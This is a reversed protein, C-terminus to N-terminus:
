RGIVLRVRAAFGGLNSEGFAEAASGPSEGIAGPVSTWQVEGAVGYWRAVRYEVGALAHFGTFTESVNDGTAAFESKESYRHWGIGAGAYPIFNRQRGGPRFRYGASLEVPTIGVDMNIGLPFVEDEDVFVREGSKGFHSIRFRLFGPIWAHRSQPLLVEAGGGLFVGASSGLTADFTDAAAFRVIDLDGFGRVIIQRNASGPATQGQQQAFAASPLTVATCVIASAIRRVVSARSM